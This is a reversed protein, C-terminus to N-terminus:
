IGTGRFPSPFQCVRGPFRDRLSHWTPADHSQSVIAQGARALFNFGDTPDNGHQNKAVAFVKVGLRCPRYWRSWSSHFERIPNRLWATNELQGECRKMLSVYDNEMTVFVADRIRPRPRAITTATTTTAPHAFRARKTERKEECWGTSKLRSM